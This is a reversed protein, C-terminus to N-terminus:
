NDDGDFFEKVRDVLSESQEKVETKVDEVRTQTAGTAQKVRGAVQDAPSGVEDGNEKQMYGELERDAAEVRREMETSAILQSGSVGAAIAQAPVSVLLVIVVAVIAIALRRGRQFLSM